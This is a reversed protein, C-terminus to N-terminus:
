TNKIGCTIATALIVESNAVIWASGPLRGVGCVSSDNAGVVAAIL